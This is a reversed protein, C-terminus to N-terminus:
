NLIKSCWGCINNSSTSCILSLDRPPNPEVPFLYFFTNLVTCAFLRCLKKTCIFKRFKELFKKNKETLFDVKKEKEPM